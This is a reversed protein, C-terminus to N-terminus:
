NRARRRRGLFAGAGLLLIGAAGPEPTVVLTGNAITTTVQGSTGSYHTNGNLTGTLLLNYTGVPASSADFVITAITGTTPLTVVGSSTTVQADYLQPTIAGSGQQGNTHGAFVSNTVIDVSSIIPLPSSTGTIQVEFNLGEVSDGSTDTVTLVSSQNAAQNITVAGVNVIPTAFVGGCSGLVAAIFVAQFRNM